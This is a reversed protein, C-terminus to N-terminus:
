AAVSFRWHTLLSFSLSKFTGHQLKFVAVLVDISRRFLQKSPAAVDEDGYRDRAPIM